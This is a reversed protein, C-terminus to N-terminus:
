RGQSGRPHDVDGASVAARRRTRSSPPKSKMERGHSESGLIGGAGSRTGRAGLMGVKEKHDYPMLAGVESTDVGRFYVFLVRGGGNNPARAGRVAWFGRFV